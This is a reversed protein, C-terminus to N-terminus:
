KGTKPEEDAAGAQEAPAQFPSGPFGTAIPETTHFPSGPFTPSTQARAPSPEALAAQPKPPGGMFPSGPFTPAGPMAAPRPAPAAAAAPVAAAKSTAKKARPPVVVITSSAHTRGDKDETVLQLYYGGDERHVIAKGKRGALGRTSALAQAHEVAADIAAAFSEPTEGDPVEEGSGKLAAALDKQFTPGSVNPVDVEIQWSM